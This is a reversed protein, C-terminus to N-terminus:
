INTLKSFRRLESTLKRETPKESASHGAALFFLRSKKLAKHLNYAAIPRCVFDYRGHVISIPMRPIKHANNVIYNDEMFCNHIMYHAELISLAEYPSSKLDEEIEKKPNKIKLFSSEYYSWMYTYKKRTGEDKSHMQKFYYPVIEHRYEQPVLSLFEEWLEPFFDKIGGGIYHDIDKKAALFIGRLIMGTVMEPYNLTFVLALTSGWSGGFLLAKEFGVHMMIKKTDEMLKQTTNEHTSAFPTSKGAGRQDFLLVNWVQPDFFKKHSDHFGSGPGGHLFVVPKGKQNGYLEYYLSHGDGVDFYGKKYPPYTTVQTSM